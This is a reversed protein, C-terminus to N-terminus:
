DLSKNSHLGLMEVVICDDDDTAIDHAVNGSVIVATYNDFRKAEMWIFDQSTFDPLLHAHRYRAVCSEECTYM